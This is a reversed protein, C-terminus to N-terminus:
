RGIAVREADPGNQPRHQSGAAHAAITLVIASDITFDLFVFIPLIREARLALLM